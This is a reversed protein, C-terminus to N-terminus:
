RAPRHQGRGLEAAPARTRQVRYQGAGHARADHHGGAGLLCACVAVCVCVTRCVSCARLSCPIFLLGLFPFLRLFLRRPHYRSPSLYSLKARTLSLVGHAGPCPIRYSIFPFFASVQPVFGIVARFEKMNKVQGNIKLEGTQKFSPDVKGMLTNLLTTKGAGSPGKALWLRCVCVVCVCGFRTPM